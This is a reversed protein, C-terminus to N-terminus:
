VQTLKWKRLDKEIRRMRLILAPIDTFAEAKFPSMTGKHCALVYHIGDGDDSEYASAIYGDQPAGYEIFLGHEINDVVHACTRQQPFGALLLAYPTVHQPCRIILHGAPANKRQEELWGCELATAREQTCGCKGCILTILTM